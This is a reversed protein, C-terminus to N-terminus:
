LSGIVPLLSHRMTWTPGPPTNVSESTWLGGDRVFSSFFSASFGAALPLFSSVPLPLAAGLAPAAAVAMSLAPLALLTACYRTALPVGTSSLPRPMSCFSLCFSCVCSSAAAFSFCDSFATTMGDESPCDFLLVPWTLVTLSRGGGAASAFLPLCFSCSDSLSFIGCLMSSTSLKLRSLFAWCM